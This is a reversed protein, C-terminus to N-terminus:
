QSVVSVCKKSVILVQNYLIVPHTNDCVSYLSCVDSKVGTLWYPFIYKILRMIWEKM